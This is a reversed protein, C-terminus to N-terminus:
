CNCILVDLHSKLCRKELDDLMKAGNKHHAIIIKGKAVVWLKGKNPLKMITIEGNEAKRKEARLKRYIRESLEQDIYGCCGCEFFQELEIFNRDREPVGGKCLYRWDDVAQMVVANAIETYENM